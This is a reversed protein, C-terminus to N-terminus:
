GHPQSTCGPRFLWFHVKLIVGRPRVILEAEEEKKSAPPPLSGSFVSLGAPLGPGRSRASGQAPGPVVSYVGERGTTRAYGFAMYAAGQEHRTHFIRFKDGTQYIADFLHDLQGGPLGFLTDVENAIFSEVIADAGSSKSM